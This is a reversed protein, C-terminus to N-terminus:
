KREKRQNPGVLWVAPIESTQVRFQANLYPVDRVVFRAEEIDLLDEILDRDRREIEAEFAEEFPDLDPRM